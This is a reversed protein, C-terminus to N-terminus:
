NSRMSNALGKLAEFAMSIINTLTKEQTHYHLMDRINGYSSVNNYSKISNIIISMLEAVVTDDTQRPQFRSLVFNQIHETTYQTNQSLLVFFMNFYKRLMIIGNACLLLYENYLASNDGGIVGLIGPNLKIDTGTLPYADTGLIYSFDIHFIAGKYTIMINNFHRDGLGIFYSHLTYSVLSYMYYKMVEDIQRRGNKEMIFQLINRGNHEIDHITEADNIIQIMGSNATLPMIPYVVVGLDIDLNEKILIDTLTMLNLVILDNIVSEKKFLLKLELKNAFGDMAEFSIIVPRTYSDKTEISRTDVSTLTVSPNYPLHIPHFKSFNENLYVIPKDLHDILGKFFLYDNQMRKILIPDFHGIFANINNREVLTASDAGASNNLYWYCHYTLLLNERILDLLRLQLYKNKNNRQILSTFFPLHCLIVQETCEQLVDFIYELICQPLVMASSYLIDVCDDCHLQEGCTRTCFLDECSRTKSASLINMVRVAQNPAAGEWTQSKIWHTLYKSHGAFLKSNVDLIKKDIESYIQSPLYYQINRLKDFYHRKIDPDSDKMSVIHDLSLPAKFMNIIKNNVNKRHEIERYCFDCVKKEETRLSAIYHSLNWYDAEEPCDAYFDPIVTSRNTCSACFINGCSRCHHKRIILSFRRKCHHCANVMTDEVWFNNKNNYMISAALPRNNSKM